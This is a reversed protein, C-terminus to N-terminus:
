TVGSHVGCPCKYLIVPTGGTLKGVRLIMVVFKRDGIDQRSLFRDIRLSSM